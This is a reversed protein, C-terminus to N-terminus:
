RCVKKYVSWIVANWGGHHSVAAEAGPFGDHTLELYSSKGGDGWPGFELTVKTVRDVKVGCPAGSWTFVIKKNKEIELFEGHLEGKELQCSYRGGVRFDITSNKPTAGLHSFFNQGSCAEYLLEVPTVFEREIHVLHKTLENEVGRLGSTWGGEHSKATELDAFGEHRLRVKCGKDSPALDIFVRTDKIEMEDSNWTFSVRKNEVIELFEGYGKGYHAWNLRYSGGPRFDIRTDEPWVGCNFFLRGEGLAAFVKSVPAAFEHEVVVVNNKEVAM